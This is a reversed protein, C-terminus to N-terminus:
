RAAEISHINHNHTLPDYSLIISLWASPRLSAASTFLSDEPNSLATGTYPVIGIGTYPVIGIGTYPVIGTGTHPV